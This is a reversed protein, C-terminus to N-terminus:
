KLKMAGYRAILQQQIQSSGEVIEMIKSDRLYRQVPLNSSCGNAGHIQVANNAANNAIKSSFYKAMSTELVSNLDGMEKLSGARLCLSRAACIETMMDALMQQILQHKAIPKGFQKRVSSYQMSEELCAQALGVCGFATSYRGHVLGYNAVHSIGFGIRGVLNGEPVECNKLTIEGLGSGRFGLLNNIPKVTLGPTNREILFAGAQGQVQAFLLFLNANQAFSIWKKKGNIVFSNGRKMASTSISLADSGTDPETLAFATLIKGSAMKTLWKQKQELTGWKSLAVSVMGQVGLLNRVNSCGRGIEESLLGYTIMDFNAGGFDSQIETGWFGKKIISSLVDKSIYQDQDTLFATPKIYENVFQRFESQKSKLEPSLIFNYNM